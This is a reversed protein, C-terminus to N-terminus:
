RGCVCLYMFVYAQDSIAYMNWVRARQGAHKRERATETHPLRAYSWRKHSHLGTEDNKRLGQVKGRSEVWDRKKGMVGTSCM